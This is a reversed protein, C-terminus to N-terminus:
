VMQTASILLTYQVILRGDLGSLLSSISDCMSHLEDSDINVLAKGIRLMKLLAAPAEKLLTDLFDPILPPRDFKFPILVARALYRCMSTKCIDIQVHGSIVDIGRMLM